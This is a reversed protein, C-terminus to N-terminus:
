TTAADVALRKALFYRTQGTPYDALQGFIRYGLRPYFDPAQFSFTDLWAGHCGAAVAIREAEEILRRGWGRGRFEEAVALIEIRLWGWQFDGILGGVISDDDARLALALPAPEWAFGRSRSFADLPAVIAMREAPALETLRELRIV